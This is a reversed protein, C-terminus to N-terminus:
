KVKKNENSNFTKNFSVNLKNVINVHVINVGDVFM